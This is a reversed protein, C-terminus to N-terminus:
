NANYVNGSGSINVDLNPYGKYYVDGSGNIDVELNDNAYVKSDGSGRVKVYINNSILGFTNFTGSGDIILEQNETTGELKVDGSGEIESVVNLSTTKFDINGSGSILFYLNDIPFNYDGYIEGSGNIIVDLESLSEFEEVTITGSGSLKVEKIDPTTIYITLVYDNYCGRKLEVELKNHSVSTNVKQVINQHGVIEVTQVDGEMVVVDFAGAADLEIFDPVNRFESVIEGKGSTCFLGKECGTFSFVLASVIIFTQLFNITKM